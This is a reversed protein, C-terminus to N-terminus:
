ESESDGQLEVPIPRSLDLTARLIRFAAGACWYTGEVPGAERNILGSEPFWGTELRISRARPVGSRGSGADIDPAMPGGEPEPYPSWPIVPVDLEISAHYSAGPPLWRYLADVAHSYDVGGPPDPPIMSVALTEEGDLYTVYADWEQVLERRLDGPHALFYIGEGGENDISFDLHLATEGERLTASLGVPDSM